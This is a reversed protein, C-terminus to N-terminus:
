YNNVWSIKILYIDDFFVKGFFKRTLLVWGAGYGDGRLIDLVAEVLALEEDDCRRKNNKRIGTDVDVFFRGHCESKRIEERCKRLLRSRPAIKKAEECLVEYKREAERENKLEEIKARHEAEFSKKRSLEASKPPNKTTEM